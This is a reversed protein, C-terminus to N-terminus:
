GDSALSAGASLASSGLIYQNVTAVQGPPCNPLLLKQAEPPSIIRGATLPVKVPAAHQWTVPDDTFNPGTVEVQISYTFSNVGFYKDSYVELLLSHQNDSTVTFVDTRTATSMSGGGLVVTVTLTINPTPLLRDLIFPIRVYGVAAADLTPNLNTSTVTTSSWTLGDGSLDVRPDDGDYILTQTLQVQGAPWKPLDKPLRLWSASVTDRADAATWIMPAAAAPPGQTQGIKYHYGEGTAV